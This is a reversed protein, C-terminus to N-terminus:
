HMCIWKKKKRCVTKDDYTSIPVVITRRSVRCADAIRDIDHLLKIKELLINKLDRNEYRLTSIEEMVQHYKKIQHNSTTHATSTHQHLLQSYEEELQRVNERLREFKGKNKLRNKRMSERNRIRHLEKRRLLAEQKSSLLINDESNEDTEEQEELVSRLVTTGLSRHSSSINAGASPSHSTSNSDSISTM